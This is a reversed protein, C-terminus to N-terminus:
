LSYVKKNAEIERIDFGDSQKYGRIKVFDGRRIDFFPLNESERTLSFNFRKKNKNRFLLEIVADIRYVPVSKRKKEFFAPEDSFVTKVLQKNFICHSVEGYYTFLEHREKKGFLWSLLGM